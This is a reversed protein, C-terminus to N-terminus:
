ITVQSYSKRIKNKYTQASKELSDCRIERHTICSATPSNVYGTDYKIRMLQKTGSYSDDTLGNDSAFHSSHQSQSTENSLITINWSM